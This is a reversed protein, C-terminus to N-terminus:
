RLLTSDQSRQLAEQREHFTEAEKRNEKFDGQEEGFGKVAGSVIRRQQAPRAVKEEFSSM